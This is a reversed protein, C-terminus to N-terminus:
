PTPQVGLPWLEIKRFFLEAGESQFLIKGATPQADFGENVVVGNVINTIRGGECIVELRNWQGDPQEVDDRGRFGLIDKWDPDRGFWNIRGSTFTTREGGRSWVTEGDRDHAVECTLSVTIPTGDAYKGGVLIFDGVGGQIIQFEISAMWPGANGDPGTAHLLIGADKTAQARSGWTREGWRFEAVLHYDRYTQRTALYGYGDGSIHLLGDHVTFVQRPDEYKTDQLYTYFGELDRGNFLVLVDEKPTIPEAAQAARGAAALGGQGPIASPHWGCCFALLVGYMALGRRRWLKFRSAPCHALRMVRQM